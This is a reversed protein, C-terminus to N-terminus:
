GLRQEREDTGMHEQETRTTVHGDSGPLFGEAAVWKREGHFNLQLTQLKLLRVSASSGVTHDIFICFLSSDYLQVRM